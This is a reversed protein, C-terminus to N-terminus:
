ESHEEGEDAHDEDHEEGHDDHGKDDEYSVATAASFGGLVALAFILGAVTAKWGFKLSKEPVPTGAM